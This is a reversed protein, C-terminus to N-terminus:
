KKTKILQLWHLGMDEIPFHYTYLLKKYKKQTSIYSLLKSFDMTDIKGDSKQLQIFYIIILALYNFIITEETNLQYNWIEFNIYDKLFLYYNNEDLLKIINEHIKLPHMWNDELLLKTVTDYHTAKFIEPFTYNENGIFNCFTNKHKLRNEVNKIAIYINGNADEAIKMLDNLKIKNKPIKKKLFLFIDSDQLRSLCISSTIYNKIDGLKKAVETDGIIIIPISDNGYDKLYNLLINLINRDAKLFSELEDIIILKKANNEIDTLKDTLSSWNHFKLIRDYIEKGDECVSTDIFLSNFEFEKALLLSGCTKGTGSFGYVFLVDGPKIDKVYNYWSSLISKIGILEKFHNVTFM